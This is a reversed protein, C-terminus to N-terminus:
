CNYKNCTYKKEGGQLSATPLMAGFKGKKHLNRGAYFLYKGPNVVVERLGPM